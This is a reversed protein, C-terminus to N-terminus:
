RWPELVGAPGDSSYRPDRIPEARVARALRWLPTAAAGGPHPAALTTDFAEAALARAEGESGARVVAADRHTSGRWDPDRPDIPTLRYVPM